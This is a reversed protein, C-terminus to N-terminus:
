NAQLCNPKEYDLFNRTAILRKENNVTDMEKKIEDSAIDFYMAPLDSIIIFAVFTAVVEVSDKAKICMTCSVLELCIEILLKMACIFVPQFQSRFNYPHEVVFMLSELTQQVKKQIIMHGSMLCMLIVIAVGYYGPVETPQWYYYRLCFSSIILQIM